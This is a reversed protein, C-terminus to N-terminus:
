RFGRCDPGIGLLKSKPDTLVRGCSGCRGTLKGYLKRFSGDSHEIDHLIM